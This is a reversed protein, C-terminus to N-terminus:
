VAAEVREKLAENMKMMSLKARREVADRRFDLFGLLKVMSLGTYFVEHFFFVRGDEREKLRFVHEASLWWSGFGHNWVWSFYRPAMCGTVLGKEATRELKRAGYDKQYAMAFVLTQDPAAVVPAGGQDASQAASGAARVSKIFPNWEPYAGFDTLAKWIRDVPASIQIETDVKM